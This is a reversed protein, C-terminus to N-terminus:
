SACPYQEILGTWQNADPIALEALAPDDTATSPQPGSAIYNSLLYEESTTLQPGGVRLNVTGPALGCQKLAFLTYYLVDEAATAHFANSLLLRGHDALVVDLRTTTRHLLAMPGQASRALAHNVLTGQLPLSRAGPFRELLRREAQEDHLYICQAGLTGIPEDRLLGEPVTGHVLKLHQLETGPVLTSQPVLTSYEPLATFSVSAPKAPLLDPLPLADGGQSVLGLVLGSSREHVCWAKLGPALWCSLHWTHEQAPDYRRHFTEILM